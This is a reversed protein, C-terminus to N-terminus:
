NILTPESELGVCSAIRMKMQITLNNTSSLLLDETMDVRGTIFSNFLLDPSDPLTPISQSDINMSILNDMSETLKPVTNSQDYDNSQFKRKAPNFVSEDM